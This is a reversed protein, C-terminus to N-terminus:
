HRLQRYQENICFLRNSVLHNVTGQERKDWKVEQVGVLGLRYRALERAVAKRSNLRCLSRAKWM